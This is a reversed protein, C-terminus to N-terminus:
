NICMVFKPAGQNEDINLEDFPINHQKLFKRAADSEECRARTYMIIHKLIVREGRGRM